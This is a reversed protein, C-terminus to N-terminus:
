PREFATDDVYGPAALVPFHFRGGNRPNRHESAVLLSGVRTWGRWEYTTPRLSTQSTLLIDSRDILRTERNVYIWYMYQPTLRANAFTVLLRDWVGDKSKTEGAMTLSVGPDKLKYPMLLWYADRMWSGHASDLEAAEADGDLRAGNIYAAGERTDVNMLVVLHDGTKKREELRHRGTMKDWMHSRYMVEQGNREEACEFSLFRTNTWAAEGGVARVVDNALAIAAPDGGGEDALTARSSINRIESVVTELQVKEKLETVMTRFSASMAGVEGGTVQPLSVDLDGGAVRSTANALQRIPNTLRRAVFFSIPLAAMLLGAGVMLLSRRIADFGAMEASKPRAVVLGGITEGSGSPIPLVSGIYAEGRLTFEGPGVSEGRAFLADLGGAGESLHALLQRGDLAPTSALVQFQRPAGRPAVDALIATEARAIGAFERMREDNMPFAAAIVGSVMRDAGEGQVIPASAVLHITRARTADLIFASAAAGERLPTAVWSVGAFDRGREEGPERDTRELLAGSADLLFTVSAGLRKSFALATDHLTAADYGTDALLAKTGAESALFSMQRRVAEARSGVYASWLAPVTSLHDRITQEAVVQARRNALAVAFGLTGALLAAAALFFQVAM